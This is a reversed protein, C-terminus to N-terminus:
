IVKPRVPIEIYKLNGLRISGEEIIVPEGTAKLYLNDVVHELRFLKNIYIGEATYTLMVRNVRNYLRLRSIEENIKAQSLSITYTREITDEGSPVIFNLSSNYFFYDFHCRANYYIGYAKGNFVDLILEDDNILLRNKDGWDLEEWETKNWSLYVKERTKRLYLVRNSLSVYMGDIENPYCSNIKGHRRAFKEQYGNNVEMEYIQNFFVDHMDLEKKVAETFGHFIGIYGMRYRESWMQVVYSNSFYGTISCISTAGVQFIKIAYGYGSRQNERIEAISQMQQWLDPSLLGGTESRGTIWNLGRLLDQFPAVMGGSPSQSRNEPRYDTYYMGLRTFLYKKMLEEFSMDYILSLIYGLMDYGLNSYAYNSGPKFLLCTNNISDIHLSLSPHYFYNNGIETEHQLGSTHTILHYLSIDGAMDKGKYFLHIDPMYKKISDHLSLRHEEQSLLCCLMTYLKSISYVCFPHTYSQEALEGFGDSWIIEGQRSFGAKISLRPFMSTFYRMNENYDRLIKDERIEKRTKM